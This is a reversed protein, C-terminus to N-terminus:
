RLGWRRLALGLQASAFHYRRRAREIGGEVAAALSFPLIALLVLMLKAAQMLAGNSRSLGLLAYQDEAYQVALQSGYRPVALYRYGGAVL